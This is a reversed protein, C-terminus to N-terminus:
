DAFIGNEEQDPDLFPYEPSSLCVSCEFNDGPKLIHNEYTRHAGYICHTIFCVELIVRLILKQSPYRGIGTELLLSSYLPLESCM